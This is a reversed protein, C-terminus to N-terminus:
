GVGRSLSSGASQGEVCFGALSLTSCGPWEKLYGPPLKLHEYCKINVATSAVGGILFLDTSFDYGGAMVTASM